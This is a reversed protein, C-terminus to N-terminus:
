VPWDDLLVELVFVWGHNFEEVLIKVLGFDNIVLLHFRESLHLM